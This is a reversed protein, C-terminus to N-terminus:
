TLQLILMFSCPQFLYSFTALQHECCELSWSFNLDRWSQPPHQIKSPWECTGSHLACHTPERRSSSLNTEKWLSLHVKLEEHVLLRQANSPELATERPLLGAGELGNKCWTRTSHATGLCVGQCIPSGSPETYPHFWSNLYGVHTQPGQSHGSLFASPSLLLICFVPDRGCLPISHVWSDGCVGLWASWLNGSLLLHRHQWKVALLDM